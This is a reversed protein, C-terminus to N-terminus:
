LYMLNMDDSEEKGAGNEHFDEGFGELPIPLGLAREISVPFGLYETVGKGLVSV